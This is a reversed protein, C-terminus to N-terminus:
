SRPTRVSKHACLQLHTILVILVYSALTYKTTPSPSITGTQPLPCPMALSTPYLPSTFALLPHPALRCHPRAIFYTYSHLARSFTPHVAAALACNCAVNESASNGDV